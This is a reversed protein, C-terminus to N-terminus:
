YGFLAQEIDNGIILGACGLRMNASWFAVPFHPAFVFASADALSFAEPDGLVNIELTSLFAGDTDNFIPDQAYLSIM